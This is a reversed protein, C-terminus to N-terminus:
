QVRSCAFVLDELGDPVGQSLEKQGQRLGMKGLARLNQQIM